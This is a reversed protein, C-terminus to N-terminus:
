QVITFSIPLSYTTAVSRGNKEGPTWAPSQSLLGTIAEALSSDTGDPVMIDSLSGDQNIKFVIPVKGQIGSAHARAPYRLRMSVWKSFEDADGSGFMPEKTLSSFAVPKESSVPLEPKIAAEDGVAQAATGYVTVSVENLMGSRVDIVTRANLALAACLLPLAYMCRLSRSAPGRSRSMMTIRNKLLSHNFNNAIAYGNSAVAKRVLSYQYEKVDAGGKLVADDAEYEYIAKLDSKLYWMVPNFWQMSSLIEVILLERAHGLRIHAREHEMMHNSASNYDERSLIIFDMWSFPSIEKDLVVVTSGSRDQHHEGASILRRLRAIDLMVRGLMIAVGLFYLFAAVAHMGLTNRGQESADIISDSTEPVPGAPSEVVTQRIADSVPVSRHITVTCFPLLFSALVTGALVARNMRHLTEKSLFIRYFLYFVAMIVAVKAQYILFHEM